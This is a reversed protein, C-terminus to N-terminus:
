FYITIILFCILSSIIGHLLRSLFYPYYRIKKNDLISFVQMHICIGGFSILFCSIITKSILNINSLSLYKLGQTIEILGYLFKINNNINFISDIIGTIILCFTIVGLILLLTSATSIITENLINIFKKEIPKTKEIRIFESSYEDKKLIIGIIFSSIFHSILIIIGLKKSNLFTIGITNIIFIPNAFHCFKICKNIDKTHILNNNYLDKLYKANSPTGSLISMIIAFICNKNINFIKSMKKFLLSIEEALDYKIFINSIFMIPILSPFLNNFCINFSLLINNVIITSNLLIICIITLFLMLIIKKM